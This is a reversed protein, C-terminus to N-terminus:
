VQSPLKADTLFFIRRCQTAPSIPSRLVTPTGVSKTKTCVSGSSSGGLQCSATLKGSKTKQFIVKDWVYQEAGDRM